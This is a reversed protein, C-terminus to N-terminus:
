RPAGGGQLAKGGLGIVGGGFLHLREKRYKLLPTVFPFHGLKPGLLRPFFPEM